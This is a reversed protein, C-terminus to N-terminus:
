YVYVRVWLYGFSLAPVEQENLELHKRYYEEERAWTKKEAALMEPVNRHVPAGYQKQNSHILPVFLQVTSLWDFRGM